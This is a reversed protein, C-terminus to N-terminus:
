QDIGMQKSWLLLLVSDSSSALVHGRCFFFFAFSFFCHCMMEGARKEKKGIAPTTGWDLTEREREEADAEAEGGRDRAMSRCSGLESESAKRGGDREWDFGEILQGARM